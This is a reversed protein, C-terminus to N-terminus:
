RSRRKNLKDKKIVEKDLNEFNPTVDIKVDPTSFINYGGGIKLPSVINIDSTSIDSITITDSSTIDSGSNGESDDFVQVMSKQASNAYLVSTSADTARMASLGRATNSLGKGFSTTYTSASLNNTANSVSGLLTAGIASDGIIDLTGRIGVYAEQAELFLGRDAFERAKKHAEALQIVAFQEMVEKNPEKDIDDEKVFKIKAKTRKEVFDGNNTLDNYTVLIDVLSSARQTVAKTVKDLGMRVLLHKEEESYIDDLNIKVREKGDKTDESSCTLDNLVEILEGSGKKLEIYCSINQAYCTLLGGLERAFTKAIDDTNNIFYFNGKGADAINRLCEEDPNGYGFCSVTIPTKKIQKEVLDKFEDSTTLGLNAYGDTFLLMRHVSGKPLESHKLQEFGKLMGGSMNTSSLGRLKRVEAKVNEKNQPTMKSPAYIEEVFDTFVTVGVTDRDSLQDVLTCVSSKLKEIKQGSMSGSIDLVLSLNLPARENAKKVKPAKISTMLIVENKKNFQIKQYDFTTSIKM